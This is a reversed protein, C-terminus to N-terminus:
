HAQKTTTAVPINASAPHIKMLWKKAEEMSQAILNSLARRGLEDLESEEEPM